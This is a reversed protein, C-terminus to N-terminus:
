VEQYSKYIEKYLDSYGGLGSRFPAKPNLEFCASFKKFTPSFGNFEKVRPILNTLEEGGKTVGFMRQADKSLSERELETLMKSALLLKRFQVLDPAITETEISMNVLSVNKSFYSHFSNFGGWGSLICPVGCSLAEAPSMGYDEDNHASLSVFTDSACYLNHLESHDKSGLYIISSGTKNLESLFTTEFHGHPMNKGLFPVGLDDFEGCILLKANLGMQQVCSDFSKILDIVNKQVSLRGTYIFLQEDKLGLDSRTKERAEKKYIFEDSVPFPIVSLNSSDVFQSLLKRQSESAVIFHCPRKILIEDIANWEPSFLTFDGFIHFIIKPSYDGFAEDMYKILNMPTPKHDIFVIHDIKKEKVEQFTKYIAFKDAEEPVTWISVDEGFRKLYMDQLNQTISRCSVWDSTENKKILAIKM